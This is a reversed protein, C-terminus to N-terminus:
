RPWWVCYCAYMDGLYVWVTDGMDLKEERDAFYLDPIFLKCTSRKNGKILVGDKVPHERFQELKERLGDIKVQKAFQVSFDEVNMYVINDQNKLWEFTLM